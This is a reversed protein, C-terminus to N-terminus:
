VTMIDKEKEIIAKDALDSYKKTSDQIDMESNKQVDESIEGEKELRKLENNTDKRANRISIKATEGENKVIKVLGRRREETLAPVNIRILEGNNSPNLGLNSNIIAREINALMTKEWPQIVLTRADSTNVNAVRSLPTETGYYDVKVSDLMHPSAKGARIKLLERNLHEIAAKMRDEADEMYMQLEENM